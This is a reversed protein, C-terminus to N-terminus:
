AFLSSVGRARRAPLSFDRRQAVFTSEPMPTSQVYRLLEVLNDVGNFASSPRAARSSSCRRRCRRLRRGASMEQMHPSQTMTSNGDAVAKDSGTARFARRRFVCSLDRRVRVRCASCRRDICTMGRPIDRQSRGRDSRNARYAFPPDIGNVLLDYQFTAWPAQQPDVVGAANITTTCSTTATSVPPATTSRGYALMAVTSVVKLVALDRPPVLM